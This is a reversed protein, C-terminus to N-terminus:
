GSRTGRDHFVLAIVRGLRQAVSPRYRSYEVKEYNVYNIIFTVEYSVTFM